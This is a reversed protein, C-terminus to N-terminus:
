RIDIADGSWISFLYYLLLIKTTYNPTWIVRSFAFYSFRVSSPSYPCHCSVFTTHAYLPPVGLDSDAEIGAKPSFIDEVISDAGIGFNQPRTYLTKRPPSLELIIQSALQRKQVIKRRELRRQELVPAWVDPELVKRRERRQHVWCKMNEGGCVIHRGHDIAAKSRRESISEVVSSHTRSIHTQEWSYVIAHSSGAHENCHEEDENCIILTLKVQM